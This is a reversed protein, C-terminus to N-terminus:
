VEFVDEGAVAQQQEARSGVVGTRERRRSERWGGGGHIVVVIGDVRDVLLDLSLAGQEIGCRLHALLGLVLRDPAPYIGLHPLAAPIDLVELLAHLLQLHPPHALADIVHVEPRPVDASRAGAVAIARRRRRGLVRTSSIAISPRAASIARQFVAINSAV